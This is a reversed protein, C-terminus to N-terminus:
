IRDDLFDVGYIEMTVFRRPYFDYANLPKSFRFSFFSIFFFLWEVVSELCQIRRRGGTQTYVPTVDFCCNICGQISPSFFLCVPRAPSACCNQWTVWFLFVCVWLCAPAFLCTLYTAVFMDAARITLFVLKGLLILHHELLKVITCILSIIYFFPFIFLISDRTLFGTRAFVLWSPAPIILRSVTVKTPFYLSHICTFFFSFFFCTPFYNRQFLSIDTSTCFFIHYVPSLFVMCTTGEHGQGARIQKWSVNQGHGILCSWKSEPCFSIFPFLIFCLFSCIRRWMM